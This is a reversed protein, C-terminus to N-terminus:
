VVKINNEKYYNHCKDYFEKLERKYEEFDRNARKNNCNQCSLKLNNIHWQGGKSIPIVHELTAINITLIRRCFCCKSTSRGAFLQQKLGLKQTSNRGNSNSEMKINRELLDVM